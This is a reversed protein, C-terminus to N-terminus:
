SSRLTPVAGGRAVVRVALLAVRGLWTVSPGIGAGEGGVQGGGVAALWGLAERVSISLAAAKEGGPLNVAAHVSWGLAPGGIAELRDALGDNDEAPSGRGGAWVVVQSNAWSAQLRVEEPELPVPPASPGSASSSPAAPPPRLFREPELVRLLRDYSAELRDLTSEFDAVVQDREEGKLDWVVDLHDETEDILRELARRWRRQDGELLALQEGTADGDAVALAATEFAEFDDDM